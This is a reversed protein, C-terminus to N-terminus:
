AHRVGRDSRGRRGAEAGGRRSRRPPARTGIRALREARGPCRRAGCSTASRCCRVGPRRRVATGGTPWGGSGRRARPSRCPPPRAPVM